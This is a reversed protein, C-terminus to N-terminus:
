DGEKQTIFYCEQNFVSAAVSLEPCVGEFVCSYCEGELLFNHCHNDMIDAIKALFDRIILKHHDPLYKMIEKTEELAYMPRNETEMKM